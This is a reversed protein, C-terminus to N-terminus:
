RAKLTLFYVIMAGLWVLGGLVVVLWDWGRIRANPAHGPAVAQNIRNACAQVPLLPVFTLMATSSHPDPTSRGMRQHAAAHHDHTVQLRAM